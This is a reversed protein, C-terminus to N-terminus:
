PICRVDLPSFSPLRASFVVTIFLPYIKESRVSSSLAFMSLTTLFFISSILVLIEPSRILRVHLGKALVQSLFVRFPVTKLFSARDMRM